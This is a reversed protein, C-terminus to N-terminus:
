RHRDSRVSAVSMPQDDPQASNRIQLARRLQEAEARSFTAMLSGLPAAAYEQMTGSQSHPLGAIIHGLEHVVIDGLLTGVSCGLRAAEATVRDSHVWARAAPRPAASALVTARAAHRETMERSLLLFTVDAAVLVDHPRKDTWHTAIGISGFVQQVYHQAETLAIPRLDSYDVVQINLHLPESSARSAVPWWVVSLVAVAAPGLHIRM